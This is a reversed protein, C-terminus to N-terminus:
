LALTATVPTKSAIFESHDFELDMNQLANEFFRFAITVDNDALALYKQYLAVVREQERIKAQAESIRDYVRSRVKATADNIKKYEAAKKEYVAKRDLYTNIAIENARAQAETFVKETSVSPTSLEPRACRFEQSWRNGIYNVDCLASQSLVAEVKRADEEKFFEISGIKYVVVDPIASPKEPCEPVEGLLPLGEEACEIDAYRQIEAETLALVEEDTLDNIRRM